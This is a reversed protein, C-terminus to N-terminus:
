FCMKFIKYTLNSKTLKSTQYREMQLIKPLNQSNEDILVIQLM